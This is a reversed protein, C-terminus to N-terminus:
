LTTFLGHCLELPELLGLFCFCPSDRHPTFGPVRSCPWVEPGFSLPSECDLQVASDLRLVTSTVSIFELVEDLHVAVQPHWMLLLYLALM